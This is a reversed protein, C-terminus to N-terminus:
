SQYIQKIRIAFRDDIVVVEGNGLPVGQAILEVPADISRNLEFVSGRNLKLLQEVAVKTRGLEASVTVQVDSLRNLDSASAEVENQNLEAFEPKDVGDDSKAANDITETELSDMENDAPETNVTSEETMAGGYRTALRQGRPHRLHSKSELAYTLVDDFGTAHRILAAPLILDDVCHSALECVSIARRDRWLGIRRQCAFDHAAPHGARAM